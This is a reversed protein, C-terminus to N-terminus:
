VIRSVASASGSWSRGIDLLCNRSVPLSSHAPTSRRVLDVVVWGKEAVELLVVPVSAVVLADSGESVVVEADVLDPHERFLWGAGSEGDTEEDATAAFILDRRLPVQTRQALVVIQLMTALIHKM